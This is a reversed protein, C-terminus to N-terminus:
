ATIKEREFYASRNEYKPGQFNLLLTFLKIAAPHFESLYCNEVVRKLEASGYTENLWQWHKWSGYNITNIVVTKKAEIYDLDEFKFSWFLPRFFEPLNKKEQYGM